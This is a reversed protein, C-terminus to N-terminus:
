HAGATAGGKGGSDGSFPPKAFWIFFVLSFFLWGLITFYEVTSLMFAQGTVMQDLVM